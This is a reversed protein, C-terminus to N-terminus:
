LSKQLVFRTNANRLGDSHCAVTTAKEFPRHLLRLEELVDSEDASFPAPNKATDLL